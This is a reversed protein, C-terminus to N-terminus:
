ETEEPVIEETRGVFANRLLNKSRIDLIFWGIVLIWVFLFPILAMSSTIGANIIAIVLLIINVTIHAIIPVLINKTM